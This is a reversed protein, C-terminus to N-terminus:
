SSPSINTYHSVTQQFTNENNKYVPMTNIRQVNADNNTWGTNNKGSSIDSITQTSSRNHVYSIEGEEM